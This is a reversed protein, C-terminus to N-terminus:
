GLKLLKWVAQEPTAAIKSLAERVKAHDAESYKLSITVEDAFGDTDIEQNKDSFDQGIPLDLGWDSLEQQDWENALEDWNWEGFGVNDKIIFERRQEETWHDALMVPVEKIGLDQIARLRMNGGLVMFKGDTDTVAVIGRYNLMDPFSKISAKLKLFKEDRLVRPNTPNAKLQATPVVQFGKPVDMTDTQEQVARDSVKKKKPDKPNSMSDCIEQLVKDSYKSPRGM